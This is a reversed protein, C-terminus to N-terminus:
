ESSTPYGSVRLHIGAAGLIQLDAPSLDVSATFSEGYVYLAIDLESESDSAAVYDIARANDALFSRICSSLSSVPIDHGATLNFTKESTLTASLIGFTELFDRANGDAIRVRWVVDVLTGEYTM